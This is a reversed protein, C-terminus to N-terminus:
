KKKTKNLGEKILEEVYESINLDMDICKKKVNKWLEADIRISTTKRVM